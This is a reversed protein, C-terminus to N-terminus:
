KKSAMLSVLVAPVPSTASKEVVGEYSFGAGLCSVLYNFQTPLFGIEVGNSDVVLLRKNFVLSVSTGSPPVSGSKTFYANRAVEELQENILNECPDSGSSGGSSGGSGAGTKNKSYDSLRGTGSSGM